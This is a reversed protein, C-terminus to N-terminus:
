NAYVLGGDLLTVLVDGRQLVQLFLTQQEAAPLAQLVSQRQCVADTQLRELFKGSRFVGVHGFYQSAHTNSPRLLAYTSAM